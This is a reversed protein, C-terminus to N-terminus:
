EPGPNAEAALVERAREADEPHVLVRVSNSFSLAVEMGGADDAFIASDIGAADLYAKAFEAEHRYYFRAVTVPEQEM